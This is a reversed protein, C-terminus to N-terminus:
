LAHQASRAGNSCRSTSGATASAARVAVGSRNDFSRLRRLSSNFDYTIRAKCFWECPKAPSTNRWLFLKVSSDRARSADYM